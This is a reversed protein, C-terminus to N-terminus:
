IFTNYRNWDMISHCYTNIDVIAGYLDICESRTLIDSGLDSCYFLAYNNYVHETAGEKFNRRRIYNTM